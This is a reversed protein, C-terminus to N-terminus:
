LKDAYCMKAYTTTKTDTKKHKLPAKLHFKLTRRDCNRTNNQTNITNVDTFEIDQVATYM